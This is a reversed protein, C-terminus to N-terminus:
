VHSHNYNSNWYYYVDFQSSTVITGNIPMSVQGNMGPEMIITLKPGFYNIIYASGDAPGIIQMAILIIDIFQGLFLFGLTCLKLLGIAPYGLYFRDAGFMGLFISLLLTAEYSYNTTYQCPIALTVNRASYSRINEGMTDEFSDDDDDDCILGERLTCNIPALNDSRCGIPQQNTSNIRPQPCYFQGIKLDRCNIRFLKTRNFMHNYIAVNSSSPLSIPLSSETSFQAQNTAADINRVFAFILVVIFSSLIFSPSTSKLSHISHFQLLCCHFVRLSGLLKWRIKKKM